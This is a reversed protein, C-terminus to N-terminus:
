AQKVPAAGHEALLRLVDRLMVHEFPQIALKACVREDDITVEIEKLTYRYREAQAPDTAKTPDESERRRDDLFADAQARKRFARAPYLYKGDGFATEYADESMILFVPFSGRGLVRLQEEPVDALPLGSAFNDQWAIGPRNRYESLPPLTIGRRALATEDLREGRFNAYIEQHYGDWAVSGSPLFEWAGAQSLRLVGGSGHPGLFVLLTGSFTEFAEFAEDDSTM